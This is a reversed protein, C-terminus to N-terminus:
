IYIILVSHQGISIYIGIVMGIAINRKGLTTLIKQKQIIYGLGVTLVKLKVLSITEKIVVL